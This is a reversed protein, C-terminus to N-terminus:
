KLTKETEDLLENNKIVFILWRDLALQRVEPKDNSFVVVVNPSKLRLEMSDYKSALLKGDKIKELMEYNVDEFAKAKGVNFLFIDTTTLPQKRLIHCISTNKTKIDMGSVVRNWGFRSEIFEQFWSKGECGKAGQVWIVQRGTPIEIYKLLHEQWPRLIVNQHDICQKQKIFLDLAEKYVADLSEQKIHEEGIIKYIRKGLVIKEDYKRSKTVLIKRLEDDDNHLLVNTSSDKEMINLVTSESTFKDEDRKSQKADANSNSTYNPYHNIGINTSNHLLNEDEKHNVHIKMHGKIKDSRMTKMCIKCYIQKNKGMTRTILELIVHLSINKLKNLLIHLNSCTFCHGSAISLYIFM